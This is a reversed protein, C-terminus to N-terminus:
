RDLEHSAQSTGDGTEIFGMPWTCESYESQAGIAKRVDERALYEESSPVSQADLRIDFTKTGEPWAGIIDFEMVQGYSKWAENCAQDTGEAACKEIAPRHITDFDEILQKYLTENILERFTNSYAFDINSREQIMADFWGNDVGRATLTVEHREGTLTEDNNRELILQAFEPGWHGGYSSTFIGIDRGQYAPFRKLFLQLFEDVVVAAEKTTRPQTGNGYSFGTGLPQDVYLMNAYETFSHPNLSPESQDGTSFRCPGNNVFAGMM